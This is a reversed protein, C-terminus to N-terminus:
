DDDAALHVRVTVPFHDSFVRRYGDYDSEALEQHVTAVSEDVLARPGRMATTCILYDLRSSPQLPVGGLRTFPYAPDALVDWGKQEMGELYQERDADFYDLNLDGALVVDSEGELASGPSRLVANLTDMLLALASDHNRANDRGSALHLGVIVLDNYSTGSSTLTFKAVLPDREFLEQSQVVMTPYSIAFATDLLARTQDWLIAVHQGVGAEALLYKYRAGLYGILRELETSRHSGVEGEGPQANIENLVLIAADLKEAIVHALAQYDRDTRPEYLPGGKFHEPFGRTQSDNLHELNWTGLTVCSNTCLNEPTAPYEPARSCGWPLLLM